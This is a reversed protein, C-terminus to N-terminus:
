TTARANLHVYLLAVSHQGYIRLGTFEEQSNVGDHYVFWNSKDLKGDDKWRLIHVVVTTYKGAATEGLTQEILRKAKGVAVTANATDVLSAPSLLVGRPEGILVTQEQAFLNSAFFNAM